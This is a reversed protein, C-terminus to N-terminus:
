NKYYEYNESMWEKSKIKNEEIKQEESVYATQSNLTANLKVRWQEEKAEAQRKILIWEDCLEIPTMIWNNGAGYIDITKYLKM